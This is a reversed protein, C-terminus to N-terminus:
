GPKKVNYYHSHLDEGDKGTLPLFPLKSESKFGKKNEQKGILNSLQKYHFNSNEREEM